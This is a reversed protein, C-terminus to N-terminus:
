RETREALERLRGACVKWAVITFWHKTQDHDMSSKPLGGNHHGHHCDVCLPIAGFDDAKIGTGHPGHHSAEILGVAKCWACPLSRVYALHSSSRPTKAKPQARLTGVPRERAAEFSAAEESTRIPLPARTRPSRLRTVDCRVPGQATLVRYSHMGRFGGVTTKEIIDGALWRGPRGGIHVEVRQGVEYTVESGM